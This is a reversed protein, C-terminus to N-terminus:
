SPLHKSDCVQTPPVPLLFKALHGKQSMKISKFALAPPLRSTTLRKAVKYCTLCFPLLLKSRQKSKFRPEFLILGKGIIRGVLRKECDLVTSMNGPATADIAATSFPKTVRSLSM